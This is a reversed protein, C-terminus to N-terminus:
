EIEFTVGLGLSVFDAGFKARLIEVGVPGTCHTPAAKQVKCEKLRAVVAEIEAPTKGVLHFGGVVLSIGKGTSDAVNEVIHEIGPHACGTLVVLGRPSQVVLAHEKIKEGFVGTLLAGQCLERSKQAASFVRGTRGSTQRILLASPDPPLYVVAKPAHDLLVGLGGTHDGHVHSLVVIDVESLDVGLRRANGVLVPGKAGTDFLIVKGLGRVLCSFGWDNELSERTGQNDYLVTLTVSESKSEGRACTALGCALLFIGFKCRSSM